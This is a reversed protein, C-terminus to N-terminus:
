VSPDLLVFILGNNSYYSALWIWWYIRKPSLFVVPKIEIDTWVLIPEYARFRERKWLVLLRRPSSEAYNFSYISKGLVDGRLRVHSVILPSVYISPLVRYRSRGRNARLLTINSWSIVSMLSVNLSYIEDYKNRNRTSFVWRLIRYPLRRDQEQYNFLLSM